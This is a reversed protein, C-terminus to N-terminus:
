DLAAHASLLRPALVDTVTAGRVIVTLAMNAMALRRILTTMPM